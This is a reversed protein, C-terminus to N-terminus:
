RPRQFHSLQISLIGFPMAPRRSARREKEDLGLELQYFFEKKFLFSPKNNKAIFVFSDCLFYVLSVPCFHRVHFTITM